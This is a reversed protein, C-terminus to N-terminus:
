WIFQVLLGSQTFLKGISELDEAEVSLFATDPRGVSLVHEETLTAATSPLKLLSPAM